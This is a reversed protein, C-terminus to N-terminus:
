KSEEVKKEEGRIRQWLWKGIETGFATAIGTMMAMFIVSSPTPSPPPNEAIRM